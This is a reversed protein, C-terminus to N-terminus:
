LIVINEPNTISEKDISGMSDIWAEESAKELSAQAVEKAYIKMINLFMEREHKDFRFKYVHSVKENYSSIKEDFIEELRSM